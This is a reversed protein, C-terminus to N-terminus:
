PTLPLYRLQKHAVNTMVKDGEDNVVEVFRSQGCQMCKKEEVHEKMFLMCNTKRVDIKKYDMDLGKVITKSHSMDKILKHPKPLVDRFLKIIENYCNNSSFYKSNIVM